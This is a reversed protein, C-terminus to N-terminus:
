GAIEYIMPPPFCSPAVRVVGAAPHACVSDFVSKVLALDVLEVAEAEVADFVGEFCRRTPSIAPVAMAEVTARAMM